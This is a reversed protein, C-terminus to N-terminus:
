STEGGQAPTESAQEFLATLTVDYSRSLVGYMIYGDGGETETNEFPDASLGSLDFTVAMNQNGDKNTNNCIYKGTLQKGISQLATLIKGDDAATVPLTLLTGNNKNLISHVFNADEGPAIPAVHDFTVTYGGDNYACNIRVRELASQEGEQGDGTTDGTNQSASQEGEQGDGTTGGTNEAATVQQEFHWGTIKAGDFYYDTTPETILKNYDTVEEEGNPGVKTVRSDMALYVGCVDCHGNFDIHGDHTASDSGIYLGCYDCHDDPTNGNSSKEDVHKTATTAEDIVMGCYDCHGDKQEKGGTVIGASDTTITNNLYIDSYKDHGLCYGCDPCKEHNHETSDVHNECPKKIMEAGCNDCKGDNNEDDHTGQWMDHSYDSISSALTMYLVFTKKQGVIQGADNTTNAKFVMNPDNIVITYYDMTKELDLYLQSRFKDNSNGRQFGVAYKATRSEATITMYPVAEPTDDSTDDPTGNDDIENLSIRRTAADKKLTGSVSYTGETARKDIGYYPTFTSTDLTENNYVEYTNTLTPISTGASDPISTGASENEEKEYILEGLVIEPNYNYTETEASGSAKPDVYALQLTIHDALLAPLTFKIYGRVDVQSVITKGNETDFNAMDFRMSRATSTATATADGEGTEGGEQGNGPTKNSLWYNTNPFSQSSITNLEYRCSFRALSLAVDGTTSMTYRSFTVGTFLISVLLM